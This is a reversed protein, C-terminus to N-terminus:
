NKHSMYSGWEEELYNAMKLASFKWVTGKSKPYKVFGGNEIALTDKNPYLIHEKIWRADVNKLRARVDNMDWTYGLLEHKKLREHEDKNVLVYESPIQIPVTVNVNLTQEM